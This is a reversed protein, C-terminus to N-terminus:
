FEVVFCNVDLLEEREQLRRDREEKRIRLGESFSITGQNTIKIFVELHNVSSILLCLPVLLWFYLFASWHRTLWIAWGNDPLQTIIWWELATTVWRFLPLSGLTRSKFLWDAVQEIHFTYMHYLCQFAHITWLVIFGYLMAKWLSLFLGKTRSPSATMATVGVTAVCIGYSWLIYSNDAFQPALFVALQMNAAWYAQFFVLDMGLLMLILFNVLHLGTVINCCYCVKSGVEM